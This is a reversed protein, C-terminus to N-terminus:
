RSDFGLQELRPLWLERALAAVEARDAEEAYGHVSAWRAVAGQAVVPNADGRLAALMDLAPSVTQYGAEALAFNDRVLGLQDIPDLTALTGALASAMAPTYLTRFYGLQGGNVVVAGCGPLELTARGDLVRRVPEGGAPRIDLPIRWRQPSAAVEDKRDRSFESQELTLVTNGSACRADARVL